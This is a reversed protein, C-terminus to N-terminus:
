QLHQLRPKVKHLERSRGLVTGFSRLIKWLIKHHLYQLSHIEGVMPLPYRAFYRWNSLAEEQYSIKPNSYKM